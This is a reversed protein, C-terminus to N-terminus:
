FSEVDYSYQLHVIVQDLVSGFGFVDYSNTSRVIIFLCLMFIIHIYVQLSVSLKPRTHQCKLCYTEFVFEFFAEVEAFHM